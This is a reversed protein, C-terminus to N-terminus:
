LLFIFLVSVAGLRFAVPGGSLLMILTAALVLLGQTTPSMRAIGAAVHRLAGRRRARPRHLGGRVSARHAGPRDAHELLHDLAARAVHFGLGMEPGVGGELLPLHPDHAH